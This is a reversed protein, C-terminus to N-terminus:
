SCPPILLIAEHVYSKEMDAPKLIRNDYKLLDIDLPVKGAEKSLSTRGNKRELEKLLSTVADPGLETQFRAAQNLYAPQPISGEAETQISKGFIIGPFLRSLTKQANKMHKESEFNSGLCVLCEHYIKM